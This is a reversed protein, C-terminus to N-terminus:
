ECHISVREISATNNEPFFFYFFRNVLPHLNVNKVYVKTFCPKESHMYLYSLGYYNDSRLLYPPIKTIYSYSHDLNNDSATSIGYYMISGLASYLLYNVEYSRMHPILQYETIIEVVGTPILTKKNKLEAILIEEFRLRNIKTIYGTSLLFINPTLVFFMIMPYFIKADWGLDKKSFEFFYFLTETAFIAAGFSLLIAQRGDWDTVSYIANGHGTMVYPIIGIFILIFSFIFEPKLLLDGIKIGKIIIIAIFFVVITPILYTTFFFINLILLKIQGIDSFDIISNYGSYLGYPKFIFIRIFLFLGSILFVLQISKSPYFKRSKYADTSYLFLPIFILLSNLQFSFPMLILAIIKKFKKNDLFLYIVSIGIFTCFIYITFNSTLSLHWIPFSLFFLICFIKKSYSYRFHKTLIEGFIYAIFILCIIQVINNTIRYSFTLTNSIWGLCVTFYYQLFWSSEFFWIKIASYDRIENAYSLIVGDWMDRTSIFIPFNLILVGLTTAYFNKKNM